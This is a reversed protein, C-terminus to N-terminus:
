GAHAASARGEAVPAPAPGTGEKKRNRPKESPHTKRRVADGDQPKGSVAHCAKRDPEAMGARGTDHEGNEPGEVHHVAEKRSVLSLDGRETGIEIGADVTVGLKEEIEAQKKMEVPREIGDEDHGGKGTGEEHAVVPGPGLGQCKGALNTEEGAELAKEDQRDPEDEIERLRGEEDDSDEGM